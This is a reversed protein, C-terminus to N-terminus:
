THQSNVGEGGGGPNEMHAVVNVLVASCCWWRVASSCPPPSRGGRSLLTVPTPRTAASVKGGSSTCGGRSRLPRPSLPAPSSQGRAASRGRGGGASRGVAAGGGARCLSRIKVVKRVIDELTEGRDPARFEALLYRLHKNQPYPPPSSSVAM